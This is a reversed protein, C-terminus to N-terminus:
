ICTMSMFLKRLVKPYSNSFQSKTPCLQQSPTCTHILLLSYSELQVQLTHLTEYAEKNLSDRLHLQPPLFVSTSYPSILFYVQCRRERRSNSVMRLGKSMFYQRKQESNCHLPSFSCYIKSSYSYRCKRYFVSIM